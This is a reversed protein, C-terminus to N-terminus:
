PDRRPGKKKLSAGVSRQPAPPHTGFCLACYARGIPRSTQNHVLNQSVILQHADEADRLQTEPRM